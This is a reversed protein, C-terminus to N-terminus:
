ALATAEANVSVGYATEGRETTWRIYASVEYAAAPTLGTLTTTGDMTTDSVMAITSTWPETPNQQIATVFTVEDMTWGAPVPPLTYTVDIEGAAAGSAASYTVLTQASKNGPSTPWLNLNTQARLAKTFAGTYANTGTFQRGKAFATWPDRFAAPALRWSLGAQAFAGRVLQQATTKPNAPDVRLRAYNIGKWKAFTTTGAFTGSADLSLLPATLKAM